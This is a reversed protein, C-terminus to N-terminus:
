MLPNSVLGDALKPEFWTSKPPMIMNKDAVAMLEKISTPYLAFAVKFKGSDVLRELESLGRIGGVFDIRESKRLDEIGLMKNLVLDSLVSVDLNKVPDKENIKKKPVIKYWKGGLYMTFERKKSPKTQKKLKKINFVESLKNLFEEESMGNLDKVVRNYDYIKMEDAPFAVALFTNYPEDGRHENKRKEIMIKCVRSAAASRHHGDAIYVIKQKDFEDIITKIDKDDDIRWITHIVDNIGKVSFLPKKKTYKKLISDVKKIKKYALLAPGTQAGVYLIQKVRDDEKVPRTLEHKRIRGNDYDAVSAGVVIGTQTHKGMKMRYVYFVPKEERVLIGDDMMKKFNEQAKKYVEESYIDTGPPLDIEAKSIHLFSYPKGKALERAEDSDIVDYPPAVVEQAKDPKPIIGYIPNFLHGKVM